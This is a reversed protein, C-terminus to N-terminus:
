VDMVYLLGCTNVVPEFRVEAPPFGNLQVLQLYFVKTCVQKHCNNCQWIASIMPNHTHTHKTKKRKKLNQTNSPFSAMIAYSISLNANPFSVRLQMLIYQKNPKFLASNEEINGTGATWWWQCIWSVTTMNTIVNKSTSWCIHYKMQINQFLSISNSPFLRFVPLHTWSYQIGFTCWSGLCEGCTFISLACSELPEKGEKNV